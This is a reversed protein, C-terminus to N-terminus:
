ILIWNFDLFGKKIFNQVDLIGEEFKLHIGVCSKKGDLISFQFIKSIRFRFLFISLNIVLGYFQERM